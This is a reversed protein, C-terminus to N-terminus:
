AKGGKVLRWPNSPKDPPMRPPMDPMYIGCTSRRDDRWPCDRTMRLALEELDMECGYKHALRALRSQGSRRCVDCRFRVLVYPYEVLRM